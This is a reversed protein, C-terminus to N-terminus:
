KVSGVARRVVPLPYIRQLNIYLEYLASMADPLAMYKGETFEFFQGWLEQDRSTPFEIIIKRSRRYSSFKNIERTFSLAFEHLQKDTVIAMEPTKRKLLEDVGVCTIEDGFLKTGVLLTLLHIGHIQM